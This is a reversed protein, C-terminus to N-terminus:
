IRVAPPCERPARAGAPTRPESNRRLEVRAHWVGGWGLRDREPERAPELQRGHEVAHGEGYAVAPAAVLHEEIEGALARDAVQHLVARRRPAGSVRLEPKGRMRATSQPSRRIPRASLSGRPISAVPRGVSFIRPSASATALTASVMR